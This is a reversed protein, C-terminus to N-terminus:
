LLFFLLRADLLDIILQELVDTKPHSPAPTGRTCLLPPPPAAAKALLIWWLWRRGDADRSWEVSDSPMALLNIDVMSVRKLALRSRPKSRAMEPEENARKQIVYLGIPQVVNSNVKRQKSPVNTIDCLFREQSVEDSQEQNNITFGWPCSRRPSTLTFALKCTVLGRKGTVTLSKGFEM